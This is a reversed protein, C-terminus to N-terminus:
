GGPKPRLDADALVHELSWRAVSVGAPGSGFHLGDPRIEDGDIEERCPGDAEPCVFANVDLLTTGPVARAAARLERNACAIKEDSRAVKVVANASTRTITGLVVPAGSTRLRRVLDVMAERYARDWAPDCAGVWQGDVEVQDNPRSGVLLFIVDPHM